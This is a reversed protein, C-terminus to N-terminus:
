CNGKSGARLHEVRPRDDARMEEIMGRFEKSVEPVTVYKTNWRRLRRAIFLREKGLGKKVFSALRMPWGSSGGASTLRGVAASRHQHAAHVKPFNAQGDDELGLFLLIEKYTSRPDNTWEDMWFVRVQERGFVDFYRKVQPFFECIRPYDLMKPDTCGGPVFSGDLRDSTLSWARELPRVEEYGTYIAQNHYSRLFAVHERLFILIRAQSNFRWIEEAATESFLNMVSAEGICAAGGCSRFLAMYEELTSAVHTGNLDTAFYHPEKVSSFAVDPHRSLYEVWATTGCKPAGVIFLNPRSDFDALAM